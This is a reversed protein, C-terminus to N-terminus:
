CHKPVTLSYRPYNPPINGRVLQPNVTRPRGTGKIIPLRDGIGSLPCLFSSPDARPLSLWQRISSECPTFKLKGEIDGM